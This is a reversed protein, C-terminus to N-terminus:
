VKGFALESEQKRNKLEQIKEKLQRIEVIDYPRNFEVKHLEHELKDLEDHETM